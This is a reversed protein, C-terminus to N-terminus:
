PRHKGVPRGKPGGTARPKRTGSGRSPPAGARRRPPEPAAAALMADLAADPEDPADEPLARRRTPTPLSEGKAVDVDAALPDGVRGAGIEDILRLVRAGRGISEDLHAHLAPIRKMRIKTGLQRRVFPMAHALARMTEAREEPAGIISVWVRAHALDPTAEVRTVTVFGIRPDSVERELIAGIEQRLLEDVRDLRQSM